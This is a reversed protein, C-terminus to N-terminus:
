AASAKLIFLPLDKLIKDTWSLAYTSHTPFGNLKTSRWPLLKLTEVTTLPTVLALLVWM